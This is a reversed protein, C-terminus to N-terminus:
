AVIAAVAARAYRTPAREAAFLAASPRSAVEPRAITWDATVHFSRSERRSSSPPFRLAAKRSIFDARPRLGAGECRVADFISTDSTIPLAPRSSSSFEPERIAGAEFDLSACSLSHTAPDLQWLPCAGAPRSWPRQGGIASGAVRAVRM